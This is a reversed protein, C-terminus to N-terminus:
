EDSQNKAAEVKARQAASLSASEPEAPRFQKDPAIGPVGQVVSVKEGELIGASPSVILRDTAKLGSVVQVTQGLNLGLKVDQL